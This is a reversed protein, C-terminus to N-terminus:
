AKFINIQKRFHYISDLIALYVLVFIVSKILVLLLPSITNNNTLLSIIFITFVGVIWVPLIDRVFIKTTNLKFHKPIYICFYFVMHIIEHVAFGIVVGGVGIQPIFLLYIISAIVMAIAGMIAIPVLRKETFVLSTMVNRNSLLLSCLWACIWPTLYVYDPGVYLTVLEDMSLILLFVIASLFITTYRTGASSLIEIGDQDSNIRMRTVMPLLVQMFSGSLVVVVSTITNMIQYEAVSGPGSLIGLFLPRFNIACFQFISFSFVSIAYPFVTKFIDSDFGFSFVLGPQMRKTKVMTWPLIATTIFIYCLFYVEIPFEFIITMFLIVFQLIKLFTSRKKIWDILEKATLFQDYCTSIWSFTANLGLIWLLNRLTTAQEPTVKFIDCVFFSVGFLIVSNLIGILLYFLHTLSFLKQLKNQENKTIYESYFRVISNTMGIDLLQIYVNVSLAIGILGYEEKGYYNLLFPVSVIGYLISTINNIITWSIGSVITRLRGM